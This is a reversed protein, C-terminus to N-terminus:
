KYVVRTRCIIDHLGKKEGFAVMIFGIYFIIGSLIYAFYRGIAQGISVRGGQENVVKLGLIKKGLTGQMKSATLLGYYLVSIVIMILMAPLFALTLYKVMYEDKTMYPDTAISGAIFVSNIIFLIIYSPVSVIIGDILYALVRIWFGAPKEM